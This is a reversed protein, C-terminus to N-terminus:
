EKVVSGQKLVDTAIKAGTANSGAWLLYYLPTGRTNKIVRPSTAYGYVEKLRKQYWKALALGSDRKKNKVRGFLDESEEYVIKEWEDSGFYQTLSQRKLDSFQGTKPLNRQIAMGVPFNVIVEIAKTKGLAEITTWPVQMGFPDLFVVARYKKWDYRNSLLLERFVSQSADGQIISVKRKGDYKTKIGELQKIREPNREIFIYESFPFQLDLAKQPSGQIYIGKELGLDDSYKAISFLTGEIANLADYQRLPAEGGGAFADVYLFGTCWRQDKLITTYAHLYKRLCELKEEAWPGVTGDTVYSTM